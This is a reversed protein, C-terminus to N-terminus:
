FTIDLALIKITSMLFRLINIKSHIRNQFM